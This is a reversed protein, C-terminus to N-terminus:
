WWERLCLFLLGVVPAVLMAVSPRDFVAVAGVVSPVVAAIGRQVAWPKVSAGARRRRGLVRSPEPEGADGRCGRGHQARTGDRSVADDM